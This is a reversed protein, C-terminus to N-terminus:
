LANFDTSVHLTYKDGGIWDTKVLIWIYDLKFM